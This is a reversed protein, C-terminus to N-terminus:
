DDHTDDPGHRHGGYLWEDKVRPRMLGRLEDELARYTHEAGALRSRLDETITKGREALAQAEERLPFFERGAAAIERVANARRERLSLAEGTVPDVPAAEPDRYDVDSPRAM